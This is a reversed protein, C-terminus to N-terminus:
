RPRRGWRGAPPGAERARRLTRGGASPVAGMEDYFVRYRLAQAAAIETECEALRAELRTMGAASPRSGRRKTGDMQPAQM